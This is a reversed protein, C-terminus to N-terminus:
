DPCDAAMLKLVLERCIESSRKRHGPETLRALEEVTLRVASEQKRRKEKPLASQSHKQGRGGTPLRKQKEQLTTVSM